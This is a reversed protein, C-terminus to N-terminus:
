ANIVEIKGQQDPLVPASSMKTELTVQRLRFPRKLFVLYTLVRILSPVRFCSISCIDYSTMVTIPETICTTTTGIAIIIYYYPHYVHTITSLPAQMSLIDSFLESVLFTILSM